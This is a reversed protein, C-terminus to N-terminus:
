SIRQVLALRSTKGSDPAGQKQLQQAQKQLQQLQQANQQQVLDLEVRLAKVAAQLQSATGTAEENVVARNRVQKARAAFKLTSLTEALSDDGPAVAAILATKANGGLSDRLLTTLKSDRYPVHRQKGNAVDVLAAIVNGLASLSKNIQGAEKLRDGTARTAAQRESGALDILHFRAARTRMIGGRWESAEIVLTFVSHSRSSELNMATAAVHRARVGRAVVALAAAADAVPVEALDEVYVGRAASERISLANPAAGDRTDGLLDFVRENYIELFSARCSFRPGNAVAGVLPTDGNSSSTTSGIREFVFELVRPLIGRQSSSTSSEPGARPTTACQCHSPPTCM